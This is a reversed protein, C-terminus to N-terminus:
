DRGSMRRHDRRDDRRPEERRLEERRPEDRRDDRRPEDRRPEERRPEDRRNDGRNDRRDDRREDRRDNRYGHRPPSRDRGQRRDFDRRDRNQVRGSDRRPSRDRRGHRNTNCDRAWHGQKGCHFCENDGPRKGGNKAWEIVLEGKTSVAKMADEADRKDEYEVFGYGQKIDFRTMKGFKSFTDELDRTPLERPIRAVFLAM